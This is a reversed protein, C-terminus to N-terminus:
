IAICTELRWDAPGLGQTVPVAYVHAFLNCRSKVGISLAKKEAGKRTSHASLHASNRIILIYQTTM